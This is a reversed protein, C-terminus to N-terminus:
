RHAEASWASQHIQWSDVEQIWVMVSLDEFEEVTHEVDHDVPDSFGTEAHSATESGTDSLPASDEESPTTCSMVYTTLLMPIYRLM